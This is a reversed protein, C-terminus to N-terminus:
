SEDRSEDPVVFAGVVGMADIPQNSTNQYEASLEYSETPAVRFNDRQSWQPLTIARGDPSKRAEANWVTKGTTANALLLRVGYPAHLHGMLYVVMGPFPFTVRSTKVERGPMVLYSADEPQSPQHASLWVPKVSTLPAHGQARAVFRVAVKLYVSKFDEPLPNRFLSMMQLPQGKFVPVGYGAPLVTSSLEGGSGAVVESSAPHQADFRFLATHCLLTGPLEQEREDLIRAAFEVLWGDEGVPVAVVPVQSHFYWPVAEASVGNPVFPAHHQHPTHAPLDIPGILYTRTVEQGSVDAHEVVSPATQQGAASAPAEVPAAPHPRIAAPEQAEVPVVKGIQVVYGVSAIMVLALRRVQGGAGDRPMM